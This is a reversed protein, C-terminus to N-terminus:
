IQFTALDSHGLNAMARMLPFEQALMRSAATYRLLHPVLYAIIQQNSTM